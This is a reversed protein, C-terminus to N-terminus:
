KLAELIDIADRICQSDGGNQWRRLYILADDVTEGQAAQLGPERDHHLSRTMADDSVGIELESQQVSDYDECECGKVDCPYAVFRRSRDAMKHHEHGHGCECAPQFSSEPRPCGILRGHIFVNGCAYVPQGIEKRGHMWREIAASCDPCENPYDSQM